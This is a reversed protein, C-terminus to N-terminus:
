KVPLNYIFIGLFSFKARLVPITYKYITDIIVTTFTLTWGYEMHVWKAVSSGTKRWQLLLFYCSWHFMTITYLSTWCTTFYITAAINESCKWLKVTVNFFVIKFFEKAGFRGLQTGFCLYICFSVNWCLYISLFSWSSHYDASKAGSMGHFLHLVPELLGYTPTPPPPRAKWSAQSCAKQSKQIHRRQILPWLLTECCIWPDSWSSPPSPTGQWPCGLSPRCSSWTWSRPERWLQHYNKNFVHNDIHIEALPKKSWYFRSIKLQTTGNLLFFCFIGSKDSGGQVRCQLSSKLFLSM